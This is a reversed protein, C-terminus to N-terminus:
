MKFCLHVGVGLKDQEPQQLARVLLRQTGLSVVTGTIMGILIGVTCTRMGILIITIM